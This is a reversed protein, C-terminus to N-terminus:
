YVGVLGCRAKGDCGRWGGCLRLVLLVLRGRGVARAAVRRREGVGGLLMLEVVVAVGVSVARGAGLMVVVVVVVVVVVGFWSMGLEVADSL